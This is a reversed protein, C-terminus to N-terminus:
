IQFLMHGHDKLWKRHAKYKSDFSEVLQWFLTSHNMHMIHSLEHIVVYDIIEVPAFVLRWNLYIQKKSNCSGWRKTQTKVSVKMPIVGMQESYYAVREIIIEEARLRLWKTLLLQIHEGECTITYVHIGGGSACVKQDKAKPVEKITLVKQEGLFLMTSGSAYTMSTVNQQSMRDLHKLIWDMKKEILSEIESHKLKNPAMIRVTANAEIIISVTKRNSKKIFYNFSGREHSFREM